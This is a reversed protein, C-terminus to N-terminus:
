IKEFEILNKNHRVTSIHKNYYINQYFKICIPCLTKGNIEFKDNEIDYNYELYLNKIDTWAEVKSSM